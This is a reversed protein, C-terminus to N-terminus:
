DNSYGGVIDLTVDGDPTLYLNTKVTYRGFLKILDKKEHRHMIVESGHYVNDGEKLDVILYIRDRGEEMEKESDPYDHLWAKTEQESNDNYPSCLDLALAGGNESIADALDKFEERGTM